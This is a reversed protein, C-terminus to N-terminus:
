MSGKMSCASAAAFSGIFNLAQHSTKRLPASRSENTGVIVAAKMDALDASM